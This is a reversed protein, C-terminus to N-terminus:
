SPFGRARKMPRLFQYLNTGINSSAPFGQYSARARPGGTRHGNRTRETDMGHGNREWETDMGIGNRKREM